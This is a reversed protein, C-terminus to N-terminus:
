ILEAAYIDSGLKIANYIRQSDIVKITRFWFSQKKTQNRLGGGNQPVQFGSERGALRV